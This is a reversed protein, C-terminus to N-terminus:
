RDLTKKSKEHGKWSMEWFAMEYKSCAVFIEALHQVQEEKYDQTLKNLMELLIVNGARYKESAYGKVWTGYFADKVSDPNNKVINRAIVEYSYACSLIATLIEAEGEEYAIRLMYSTYSLNDLSRNTERVEEESVQFIGMYGSHVDLEGNMVSIYKSFLQATEISKAKAVGIAFVKAYEELYLYDQIIYYRFKERDLTGNEIGKVFPHENYAKWIEETEKLLRDTTKMELKGGEQIAYKWNEIYEQAQMKLQEWIDSNSEDYVAITYFGTNVATQIAYDGDEYVAVEEWQPLEQNHLRKAAELYIDPKRKGNGVEECSILFEFYHHIGLRELCKQMLSKETASTVCMKVGMEQLRKLYNEVGEKLPIDKKYHEEMMQNMECAIQEKTGPIHFKKQFYEASKTMTMPKIKELMEKYDVTVGHLELYEKGLNKWYNMSDILTGDMDFLAYKM